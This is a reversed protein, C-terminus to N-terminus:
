ICNNLATETIIKRDPEHSDEYLQLQPDLLNTKNKYLSSFLEFERFIAKKQEPQLKLNNLEHYIKNIFNTKETLENALNDIKKNMEIIFNDREELIKNLESYDSKMQKLKLVANNKENEMPLIIKRAQQFNSDNM